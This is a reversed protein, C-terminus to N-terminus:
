VTMAQTWFCLFPLLGFAMCFPYNWLNELEEGLRMNEKIEYYPKYCVPLISEKTNKLGLRNSLFQGHVTILSCLHCNHFQGNGTDTLVCLYLITKNSSVM